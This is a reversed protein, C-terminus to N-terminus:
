TREQEQTGLQEREAREIIEAVRWQGEVERQRRRHVIELARGETEDRSAQTVQRRADNAARRADDAANRARAAEGELRLWEARLDRVHVPVAARNTM